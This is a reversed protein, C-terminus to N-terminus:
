KSISENSHKKICLNARLLLSKKGILPAIKKIEVGSPKGLIAVRIPMFLEKGRVQLEKKINNQIIDVTNSDLNDVTNLYHVWKLLIKKSKNWTLTDAGEDTVAFKDDDLLYYMEKLDNLTTAYNLFTDLAKEISEEKIDTWNKLINILKARDMSKIYRSNIWRLKDEDFVAPSANVKELSFLNTLEELDFIDKGDPHSWGLLALYNILAEPLFGNKKYDGCSTSQTRKSLKKKDKGLIISLHAFLPEKWGFSEYLMLQRLTNSLHEESRLVHTIKMLHDDVVCAFSYVPLGNSRILVFDGVMTSPFEVKKRVIDNLVYKKNLSNRFRITHPKTKAIQLAEKESYNHCTTSCKLEETKLAQDCFCFFAKKQDILIDAHNKYIDIRKSQRFPGEDYKIGIWNLDNIQMDISEEKSRELDTDEIRLVFKGNMKKAFLWCFLATRAGGIHLHGTPSPAFRVRVVATGKPSTMSKALGKNSGM